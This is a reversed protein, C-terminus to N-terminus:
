RRFYTVLLIIVIAYTAFMNYGVLEGIDNIIKFLRDAKSSDRQREAANDVPNNTVADCFIIQGENIIFSTERDWVYEGDVCWPEQGALDVRIRIKFNRRLGASLQRCVHSYNDAGLIFSISISGADYHHLFGVERKWINEENTRRQIWEAAMSGDDPVIRVDASLGRLRKRDDGVVIRDGDSIVSDIKLFTKGNPIDYDPLTVIHEWERAELELFRGSLHRAIPLSLENEAM